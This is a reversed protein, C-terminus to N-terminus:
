EAAAAREAEEAAIEDAIEELTSTTVDRAVRQMGLAEAIRRLHGAARGFLDVDIENGDIAAAEMVELQLAITAFKSVLQKQVESVNEEGGMDALVAGRIAEYRKFPRTRRDLTDISLVGGVARTAPQYRSEQQAADLAM